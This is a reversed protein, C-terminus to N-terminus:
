HVQAYFDGNIMPTPTASIDGGGFLDGSFTGKVTKDDISTIVIKIHNKVPSGAGAADSATVSGGWYQTALNVAYVVQVNFTSSTDTYTGAVISKDSFNNDISLILSEGTSANLIGTISVDNVVTGTKTEQAVPPTVNFNKANGSISATMHYSTSSSNSKKCSLLVSILALSLAIKKM